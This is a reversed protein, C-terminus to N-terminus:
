CSTASTCTATANASSATRRPAARLRRARAAHERRTWDRLADLPARDGRRGDLRPAIQDFNQLAIRPHRGAHRLSADARRSPRHPTSRPSTRPWRTSTRAADARRARARPERARGAPVRADEGRIRARPGSGGVGSREVRAPSRSSTSISRRRSVAISGCNRRASLLTRARADHFRPLRPRGGEQDQVRLAGTLLVWSIHTEIVEVSRCGAGFAAPRALAEVLRRQSGAGDSADRHM